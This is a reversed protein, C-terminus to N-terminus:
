DPLGVTEGGSRTALNFLPFGYRLFVRDKM